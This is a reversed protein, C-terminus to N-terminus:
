QKAQRRHGLPVVNCQILRQEARDAAALLALAIRRAKEITLAEWDGPDGWPSWGTASECGHDLYVIGESGPDDLTFVTWNKDPEWQYGPLEERAHRVRDPPPLAATDVHSLLAALQNRLVALAAHTDNSM